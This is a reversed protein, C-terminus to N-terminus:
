SSHQILLEELTKLAQFVSQTRVSERDGVFQYARSYLPWHRSAWAFWVWGVPKTTTAGGPGAIGTIAISV